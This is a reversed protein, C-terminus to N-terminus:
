VATLPTLNVSLLSTVGSFVAVNERTQTKYGDAEISVRYGTYTPLTNNPDLSLEGPPTDLRFAATKGSQDTTGSIIPLNSNSDYVTVTAGQIPYINKLSTVQVVLYGTPSVTNPPEANNINKIRRFNERGLNIYNDFETNNM